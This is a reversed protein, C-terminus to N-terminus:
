LMQTVVAVPFASAFEDVLDFRGDRRAFIPQALEDAVQRPVAKFRELGGGRLFPNVLRRFSGHERGTLALVTRGLVRGHQRAYNASTFREDKLLARIDDQRSVLWDGTAEDRHVPHDAVLLRYTRYPDAAHEGSLLSPVDPTLIPAM